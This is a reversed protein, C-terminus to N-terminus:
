RAHISRRFNEADEPTWKYVAFTRCSEHGLVHYAYGVADEYSHFWGAFTQWRALTIGFLGIRKIEILVWNM